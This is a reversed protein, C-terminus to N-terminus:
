MLSAIFALECKKSCIQDGNYVYQGCNPCKGTPEPGKWQVYAGTGKSPFQQATPDVIKNQPDILWWHERQGWIPCYYHGRAMRLETFKSQMLKAITHCKGIPHTVNQEIWMRYINNM